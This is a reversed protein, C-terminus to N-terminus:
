RWILLVLLILLLAFSLLRNQIVSIKLQRKTERLETQSDILSTMLSEFAEDRLDMSPKQLTQLPDM